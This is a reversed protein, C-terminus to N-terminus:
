VGTTISTAHSLIEGYISGVRIPNLDTEGKLTLYERIKACMDQRHNFEQLLFYAQAGVMEKWLKEAQVAPPAIAEAAQELLEAISSLPPQGDGTGPSESKAAPSLLQCRNRHYEVWEEVFEATLAPSDEWRPNPLADPDPLTDKPLTM